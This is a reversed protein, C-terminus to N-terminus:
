PRLIRGLILWFSEATMKSRCTAFPAFPRKNLLSPRQPAAGKCWRLAHYRSLVSTELRRSSTKSTREPNLSPIMNSLISTPAPLRVRSQSTDMMGAKPWTSPLTRQQLPTRRSSTEERSDLLLKTKTRQVQVRPLGAGVVVAKAIAVMGHRIHQTVSQQETQHRPCHRDKPCSMAKFRYINTRSELSHKTHQILSLMEATCTGHALAIDEVRRQQLARSTWVCHIM